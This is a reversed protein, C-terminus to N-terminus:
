SSARGALQPEPPRFGGGGLVLVSAWALTRPRSSAHRKGGGGALQSPVPARAQPDSTWGAGGDFLGQFRAKTMTLTQRTLNSSARLGGM